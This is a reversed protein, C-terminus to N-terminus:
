SGTKQLDAGGQLWAKAEALSNFTRRERLTSGGRIILLRAILYDVDRPVVFAARGEGMLPELAAMAAVVAEVDTPDLLLQRIGQANWLATFGPQWGPHRYCTEMAGIFDARDVTGSLTVLANRAAPDVHCSYPM